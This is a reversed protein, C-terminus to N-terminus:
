TIETIHYQLAPSRSALENATIRVPTKTVDSGALAVLLDRCPANKATPAYNFVVASLQHKKVLFSLIAHEIRRSFARCSMVWSDVTLESNVLRGALVAIKGLPGFKDRYDAVLLVADPRTVLREWEADLYRHGNLNFQNTKNVLELARPNQAAKGETITLHSEIGGLFTDLNEPGNSAAAKRFLDGQRLSAVRLRDEPRVATTGFANRLDCVLEYVLGEDRTPFVRCDMGPFVAKVEAVEVPSDDLFVVSEAGVNWSALIRAVSQSKPGWNVEFPFVQDAKLVLDAREQFTAEVVAPDNKSAVGVMIGNAFLSSLFQQVLAHSQAKGELDWRVGSPSVEGVLGRWLTDDLDIIIGKKRPPPFLVRVSLEALAEAHELTYPFGAGLEGRVDLRHIPSSHRALFDANLIQLKEVRALDVALQFRLLELRLQFPGAQWLANAAIPPVALSPLSVVMPVAAQALAASLRGAQEQASTLIDELTATSWDVAARLSLRPDFDCWEMAVFLADPRMRALREVNGALDGFVGVNCSTGRLGTARRTHAVLFTQLHLPSFSCALAIRLPDGPAPQQRNLQLADILKM